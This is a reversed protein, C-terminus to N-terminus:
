GTSQEQARNLEAYAREIAGALGAIDPLATPDTCLGIGIDGGCSIASIRLAHHAGPESSSFLNRVVRDAVSVQTAPGPVNSIALSFEGASGALQQVARDIVPLRGLAHFLDYMEGADDLRKRQAAWDFAPEFERALLQAIKEIEGVGIGEVVGFAKDFHAKLNCPSGRSQRALLQNEM